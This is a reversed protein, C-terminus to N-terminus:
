CFSQDPSVQEREIVPSKSQIVHASSSWMPSPPKQTIISVDESPDLNEKVASQSESTCSRGSASRKVEKAKRDNLELESVILRVSPVPKVTSSSSTLAVSASPSEERQQELYVIQNQSVSYNQGNHCPMLVTKNWNCHVSSCTISRTPDALHELSISHPKHMRTCTSKRNEPSCSRPRKKVKKEMKRHHRSMGDPQSIAGRHSGRAGTLAQILPTPESGPLLRADKTSKLNTDSKSRQLKEKNKMADLMGQYTELQTMFNRNPKICSRKDKVHHLATEFDWNYAKMAYAIVVSASRSIGMKCHVLVKSRKEKAHSIYKYTDDWHRLLNTKDDDYVRVNFYDFCGPFFNDIERTVNLIHGVSFSSLIENIMFRGKSVLALEGM